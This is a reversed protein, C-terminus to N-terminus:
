SIEEPWEETYVVAATSPLEVPTKMHPYHVNSLVQRSGWNLGLVWGIVLGCLVLGIGIFIITWDMVRGGKEDGPAGRLAM